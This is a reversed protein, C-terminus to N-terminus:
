YLRGHSQGRVQVNYTDSQIPALQQAETNCTHEPITQRPEFSRRNRGSQPPKDSPSMAREKATCLLRQRHSNTRSNWLAVPVTHLM